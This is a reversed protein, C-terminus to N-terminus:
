QITLKNNIKKPKAEAAAQMVKKLDAKKITGTLTVEGNAITATVGSISHANLASDVSTKLMDDPSVVVPPPPPPPPTTMVNNVVSKIGKVEKATTEAASKTADDMVEGSLTAVGGKVEAIVGPTTTALKDNVEKQLKADSPKCAYLFVGLGLLCAILWSNRKKM